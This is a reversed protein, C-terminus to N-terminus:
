SYTPNHGRVVVLLVDLGDVLPFGEEPVEVVVDRRLLPVEVVSVWDALELYTLHALGLFLNRSTANKRYLRSVNNIFGDNKIHRTLLRNPFNQFNQFKEGGKRWRSKWLMTLSLHLRFPQESGVTSCSMALFIYGHPSVIVLSWSGAESLSVRMWLERGLSGLGTM